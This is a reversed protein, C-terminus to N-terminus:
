DGIGLGQEVFEPIVLRPIAGAAHGRALLEAVARRGVPGLDLTWRNVYM